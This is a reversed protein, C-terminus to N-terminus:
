GNASSRCGRGVNSRVRNLPTEIWRWSALALGWTVAAFLVMRLPVFGDSQFAPGWLFWFLKGAVLPALNHYLYVGYSLMGIKQLVPTELFRGTVGSFGALCSALVGCLAVSLFTQQWSRLGYTEWGAAHAGVIALYAGLSVWSIWRLGPSELSMGRHVAWALLSGIAFYDLSAWTLVQPWACWAGLFDHM